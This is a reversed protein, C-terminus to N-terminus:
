TKESNVGGGSSAARISRNSGSMIVPYPEAISARNAVSRALSFGPWRGLTM